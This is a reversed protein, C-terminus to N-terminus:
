KKNKLTRALRSRRQREKQDIQKLRKKRARLIKKQTEEYSHFMKAKLEGEDKDTATPKLQSSVQPLAKYAPTIVRKRGFILYAGGIFMPICLWQGMSMGLGLIGLHADPERFFEVFFRLSGYGILFFGSMWGIPLKRLSLFWLVGFLLLGELFFSMCNLRIYRTADGARYFVM